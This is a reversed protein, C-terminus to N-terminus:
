WIPVTLFTESLTKLWKSQISELEQELNLRAQAELHQFHKTHYIRPSELFKLLVQRRKRKYLCNSVKSYEQRIATTYQQYQTADNGLITLDLDLLLHTQFDFHNRKTHQKTALILEKIKTLTQQQLQFPVLQHKAWLWSDQENTPRKPNYIIDHLWISLYFALSDKSVPLIAEAQRLMNEIHQLNHYSRHQQTYQIIIAVYLVQQEMENQSLLSAVQKWNDRLFKSDM